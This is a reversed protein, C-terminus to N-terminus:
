TCIEAGSLKLDNPTGWDIPTYTTHISYKVLTLRDFVHSMYPERSQNCVKGMEEMTEELAHEPIFYAGQVAYESIRSKEAIHHFTGLGDVYSYAPNASRKVLVGCHNLKSLKILDNTHNLIDCDIIITSAPILLNLAQLATDAPGKSNEVEKYYDVHIESAYGKPAAVLINFGKPITNIVHNLMSTTTDRWKIQLFPKPTNYGAEKFRRSQGAALILARM